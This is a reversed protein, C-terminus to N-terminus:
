RTINHRVWSRLLLHWLMSWFHFKLVNTQTFKSACLDVSYFQLLCTVVMSQAVLSPKLHFLYEKKKLFVFDALNIPQLHHGAQILLHDAKSLREELHLQPLLIYSSIQLLDQSVINYQHYTWAQQHVHIINLLENSLELICSSLAHPIELAKTIIEFTIPM